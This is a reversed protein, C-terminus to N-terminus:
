ASRVGAVPPPQLYALSAVAAPGAGAGVGHVGAGAGAVPPPVVAPVVAAGSEAEPLISICDLLEQTTKPARNSAYTPIRGQTSRIGRACPVSLAKNSNAREASAKSWLVSSFHKPIM